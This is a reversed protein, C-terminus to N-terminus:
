EKPEEKTKLNEAIEQTSDGLSELTFSIDELKDVIARLNKNLADEFTVNEYIKKKGKDTM